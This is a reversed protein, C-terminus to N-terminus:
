LQLTIKKGSKLDKRISEKIREFADDLDAFKEESDINIVSGSTYDGLKKTVRKVM